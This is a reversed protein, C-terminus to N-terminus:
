RGGQGSSPVPLPMALRQRMVGALEEVYAPGYEGRAYDAVVQVAVCLAADLSLGGQVSATITDSLANALIHPDQGSLITYSQM